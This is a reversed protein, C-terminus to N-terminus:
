PFCDIFWIHQKIEVIEELQYIEEKLLNIFHTNETLSARSLIGSYESIYHPIGLFTPNLAYFFVEAYDRHHEKFM